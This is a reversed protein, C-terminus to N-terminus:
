KPKIIFFPRSLLEKSHPQCHSYPLPTQNFQPDFQIIFLVNCQGFWRLTLLDKLFWSSGVASHYLNLSILTFTVLWNFQQSSIKLTKNDMSFTTINHESPNTVVIFFIIGTLSMRVLLINKMKKKRFFQCSMGWVFIKSTVVKHVIHFLCIKM